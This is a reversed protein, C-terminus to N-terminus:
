QIFYSFVVTGVVPFYWLVKSSEWLAIQKEYVFNLFVSISWKWKNQTSSRFSDSHCHKNYYSFNFKKCNIMRHVCVQWGPYEGRDGGGRPGWKLGGSYRSDGPSTDTHMSPSSLLRKFGSPLSKVRILCSIWTIYWFQDQYICVEQYIPDISTNLMWTVLSLVWIASIITVLRRYSHFLFFFFICLWHLKVDQFM